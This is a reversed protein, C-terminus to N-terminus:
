CGEMDLGMGTEWTEGVMRGADGGVLGLLLPLARRGETDLGMAHSERAEDDAEVWDAM